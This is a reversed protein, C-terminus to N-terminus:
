NTYIIYRYKNKREKLLEEEQGIFSLNTLKKLENIIGETIKKALNKGVEKVYYEYIEDLQTKAFESWIIEFKM